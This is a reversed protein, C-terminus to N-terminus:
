FKLGGARAAEALAKVRGHYRTFGRDFVVTEIGKEKALKAIEAGIVKARETKTKGGLASTLKKSTTTVHALTAGKSDDIIQAAIHKSSRSVSLRPLTTTQRIHSRVSLARRTRRNQKVLTAKM